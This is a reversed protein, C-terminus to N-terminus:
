PKAAEPATALAVNPRPAVVAALSQDFADLYSSINWALKQGQATLEIGSIAGTDMEFRIPVVSSFTENLANQIAAKQEAPLSFASRLVCADPSAKLAAGMKDKDKADMERLRRTFVEGIREEL